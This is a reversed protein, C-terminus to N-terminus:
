DNSKLEKLIKDLERKVPPALHCVRIYEIAAELVRIRNVLNGIKVQQQYSIDELLFMRESLTRTDDKPKKM